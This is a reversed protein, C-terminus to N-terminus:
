RCTRASRPCRPNAAIYHDVVTALVAQPVAGCSLIADHFRPLAFRDALTAKARDRLALLALKDLTYTCAQGPWICYREIETAAAAAPEGLADAYYGNARERSWRMAHLGTDVVLRV